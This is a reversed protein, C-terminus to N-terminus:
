VFLEITTKVPTDVNWSAVLEDFNDISIIPSTYSGELKDVELQIEGDENLRINEKEGLKFDEGRNIILNGEYSIPMEMYEEGKIREKEIGKAVVNAKICGSLFILVCFLALLKKYM